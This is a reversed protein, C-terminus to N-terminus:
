QSLIECMLEVWCVRVALGLVVGITGCRAVLSAGPLQALLLVELVRM